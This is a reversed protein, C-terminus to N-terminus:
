ARDLPRMADINNGRQTRLDTYAGGSALIREFLWRAREDGLMQWVLVLSRAWLVTYNGDGDWGEGNKRGPRAVTALEAWTNHQVPGPLINHSNGIAFAYYGGMQMPFVNPPQMGREIIWNRAFDAVFRRAELSGARWACWCGAMIHDQMWPKLAGRDYPNCEPLWGFPEGQAQKWAPVKSNLYAFNFEVVESLHAKLPVADPCLLSALSVDRIAWGAERPQNNQMVCWDRQAGAVTKIRNPAYTSTMAYLGQSLLADWFSRRGTVLYAGYALQPQHGGDWDRGGNGFITNPPNSGGRPDMWLRPRGTERSLNVPVGRARDFQNIPLSRAAEAQAIMMRRARGDQTTFFNAHWGPLLGIDERGGTGGMNPSQIGAVSLPARFDPANLVRGYGALTSENLGTSLAYPPLAGVQILFAPDIQVNHEPRDARANEEASVGTFIRRGFGYGHAVRLGSVSFVRAGKLALTLDINWASVGGTNVFQGDAMVAYEAEVSGDAFCTFDAVLRVADNLWAVARRQVALPGRQWHDDFRSALTAPALDLSRGDVSVSGTIGSSALASMGIPADALAGARRLMSQLTLGEAVPPFPTTVLVHAGSGDPHRRLVDAQAPRSASGWSMQLGSGAPLAGQPLYVAFSGYRMALAGRGREANFNIGVLDNGAGPQLFAPAFVVGSASGGRAPRQWEAPNHLGAVPAAAAGSRPLPAAVAAMIADLRAQDVAPGAGHPLPVPPAPPRIAM